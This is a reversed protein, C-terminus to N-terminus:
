NNSLVFVHFSVVHTMVKRSASATDFGDSVLNRDQRRGDVNELVPM